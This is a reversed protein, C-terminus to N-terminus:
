LPDRLTIVVLSYDKLFPPLRVFRCDLPDLILVTPCLKASPQLNSAAAALGVPTIHAAKGEMSQRRRRRNRLLYRGQRAVAAVVAEGGAVQSSMPIGACAINLHGNRSM